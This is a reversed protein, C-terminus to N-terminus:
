FFRRPNVLIAKLNGIEEIIHERLKLKMNDCSRTNEVPFLLAPWNPFINTKFNFKKIHLVLFNITM